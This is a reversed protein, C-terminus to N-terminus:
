FVEKIKLLNYILFIILTNSLVLLLYRFYFKLNGNWMKFINNYINFIFNTSPYISLITFFELILLFYFYQLNNFYMLYIIFDLLTKIIMEIVIIFLDRFKINKSVIKLSLLILFIYLIYRFISSNSFLTSIINSLFILVFLKIKDKLAYIEKIKMLPVSIFLVEIIMVIISIIM